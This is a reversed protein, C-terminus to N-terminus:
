PGVAARLANLVVAAPTCGSFRATWNLVGRDLGPGVFVFVDVGDEGGLIVRVSEVAGDTRYWTPEVYGVGPRRM